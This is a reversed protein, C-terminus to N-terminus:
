QKTPALKKGSIRNGGEEVCTAHDVLVTFPHFRPSKLFTVLLQCIVSLVAVDKRLSTALTGIIGRGIDLGKRELAAGNAIRITQV